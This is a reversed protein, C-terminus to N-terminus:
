ALRAGRFVLYKTSVFNISASVFTAFAWAAMLTLGHDDNLLRLVGSNVLVNIGLTSAYLACYLAVVAWSRARRQFTFHKNGLYAAIAAIAFSLAKALPVEVGAAVLLVYVCGDLLAAGGGVLLFRLIERHLGLIGATGASADALATTQRGIRGERDHSM